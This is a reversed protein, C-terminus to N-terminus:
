KKVSWLERTWGMERMRKSSGGPGKKDNSNVALAKSCNAFGEVLEKMRGSRMLVPAVDSDKKAIVSALEMCELLNDRTLTTGAFHLVSVYGIITEPLYADRLYTFDEVDGEASELLWHGLIPGMLSKVVKVERGLNSWFDRVVAEGPDQALFESSAITEMADLARILCEMEFFNQAAAVEEDGLGNDELLGAAANARIEGFWAVDSDDPVSIGAKKIFIESCRVRESLARAAHLNFQKLFRKYIAAGAQFMEHWLGDILLFWELSQILEEDTPNLKEPIEGFFDPKLPRGYKLTSPDASLISLRGLPSIREETDPHRQLLSRPQFQVFEAIDMGLKEMLRLLIERDEQNTVGTVNRSLTFLAKEGQLQHCYLPMLDTLGTLRLTSVYASIVSEQVERREGTQLHAGNELGELSSLILYVHVLIRLSNHDTLKIFQDEDIHGDPQGSSPILVSTDGSNASKRLALGLEYAYQDLGNSIIAAQLTKMPTRAEASTKPNTELSKVLREGVSAADGHFQVANFAPLTQTIAATADPPSRKTLYADFQTRLLANFHAYVFDDWDECIKEVSPIDGSLIGYVAREFDDTGGQRALAFCTRRWLLMSLPGCKFSDGSGDKSLPMASMSVARWVETREICWDRIEAMSRGRRLLEYCGLWIAREFYEDEPLLKRGQRTAVDPDLQTVLPNSGNRLIQSVDSANPDLAGSWGNVKKQMKIASRTHLWGYAIIDGREARQQYDRVLEDIDVRSEDASTQLCELIAKRERATPDARLFDGWLESCSQLRSLGHHTPEFADKTNPYRLPLLRRLLDWTQAELEWSKLKETEAPSEPRNDVDDLDMSDQSSAEDLRRLATKSQQVRSERLAHVKNAAYRYYTDVLRFIEARKDAPATRAFTLSDLGRAFEEADRLFEEEVDDYPVTPADSDTRFSEDSEVSPLPPTSQGISDPSAPPMGFQLGSVNQSRQPPM